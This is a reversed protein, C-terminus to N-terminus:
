PSMRNARFLSEPFDPSWAHKAILCLAEDDTLVFQHDFRRGGAQLAPTFEILTTAETASILKFGNKPQEM